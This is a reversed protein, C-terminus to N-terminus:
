APLVMALAIWATNLQKLRRLTEEDKQRISLDLKDALWTLNEGLAAEAAIIAANRAADTIPAQTRM